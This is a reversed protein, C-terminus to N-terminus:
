SGLAASASERQGGGEAERERVARLRESASRPEAGAGRRRGGGEVQEVPIRACSTRGTEGGTDYGEPCAICEGAGSATEAQGGGGGRAGLLCLNKLAVPAAPRRKARARPPPPTAAAARGPHHYPRLSAGEGEGGKM